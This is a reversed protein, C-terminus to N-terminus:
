WVFSDTQESVNDKVVNCIDGAQCKNVDSEDSELMESYHHSIECLDCENITALIDADQESEVFTNDIDNETWSRSKRITERKTSSAIGPNNVWDFTIPYMIVRQGNITNGLARLSFSTNMDKDKLTQTLAQGYHNDVPKFRLYIDYKIGSNHKIDIGGIFHSTYRTEIRLLRAKYENSTKGEPFPHSAEGYLEGDKIRKDMKSGTEFLARVEPESSYFKGSTNTTGLEGVQVYYYGEADPELGCEFPKVKMALINM